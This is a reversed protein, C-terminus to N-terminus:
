RIYRVRSLEPIRIDAQWQGLQLRKKRSPLHVLFPKGQFMDNTLMKGAAWSRSDRSVPSNDGLAFYEGSRLQFPADSARRGEGSTYYVDRYLKVGTVQLRLGQAAFWVPKWPTPGRAAPAAYQWPEFALEGDIALLVQRDMLSLEILASGNAPLASLLGTRVVGGSKGAVLRIQREALDFLCEFEESGNSIGVTFQGTGAQISLNLALMLDRVENQGGSDPSRNYGCMDMIPAIHSAEYLRDIAAVFEADGSQSLLRDLFERPLCGQCILLKKEVDYRLPDVAPQLPDVTAPWRSLRVSTGHSGGRRIWHRYRVLAPEAASQGSGAQRTAVPGNAVPGTAAPGAAALGDFAFAGEKSKWRGDAPEALWRPQWDADDDPPRYDHDYVPIRMSRQTALSKTQIQGAIYIDGHIIQVREGPLGVLRKVYAQTPRSPNRFVVVEWRRPRQFEYAGRQVLLQDGDNRVLDSVGIGALLCNPCVAKASAHGDESRFPFKCSPCVVRRHYGLLCPAMSGTEIMYSEAEFTRFLTVLVALSVFFEVGQRLM